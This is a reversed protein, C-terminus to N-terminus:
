RCSEPFRKQYGACCWNIHHHYNQFDNEATEVFLFQIGAFTRQYIGAHHEQVHPKINNQSTDAEQHKIVKERVPKIFDFRGEGIPDHQQKRLIEEIVQKMNNIMVAPQKPCNMHRMM